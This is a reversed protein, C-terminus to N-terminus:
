GQVSAGMFGGKLQVCKPCLPLIDPSSPPPMLLEPAKMSGRLIEEILPQPWLLHGQSGTDPGTFPRTDRGLLRPGAAAPRRGPLAM